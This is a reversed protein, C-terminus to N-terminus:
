PMFTFNLGKKENDGVQVLQTQAGYREHWAVIEYKGPPLRLEFAGGERSVTHFPHSFVGVYAGMWRHVDCRFPLPVEERDFTRTTKMGKVAQGINFSRNRRASVNVNHLTSDSNLIEIPQNIMMTLVRPSYRCGQQDLVVPEAPISFTMADIGSNVYVMVNELGGDSVIVEEALDSQSM